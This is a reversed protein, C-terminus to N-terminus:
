YNPVDASSERATVLILKKQKRQLIYPCVPLRSSQEVIRVKDTRERVHHSRKRASTTLPNTMLPHAVPAQTTQADRDSGLPKAYPNPIDTPIPVNGTTALSFNPHGADQQGAHIDRIDPNQPNLNDPGTMTCDGSILPNADPAQTMQADQDSGLPEAAEAYPPTPIDIPAPVNGTTALSFNPLGDEQEAQIDRIEIDPNQTLNSNFVNLPHSIPISASTNSSTLASGSGEEIDQLEIDTNQTINFTFNRFFSM